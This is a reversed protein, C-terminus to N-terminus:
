IAHAKLPTQGRFYGLCAYEIASPCRVARSKRSNGETRSVVSQIASRRAPTAITPAARRWDLDYVEAALGYFGHAALAGGIAVRHPEATLEIEEGVALAAGVVQEAVIGSGLRDRPQGVLAIPIDAAGGGLTPLDDVFRAAAELDDIAAAAIRPRQRQVEFGVERCALRAPLIYGLRHLFGM